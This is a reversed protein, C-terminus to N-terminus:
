NESKPTQPYLISPQPKPNRVSLNCVDIMLTRIGFGHLDLKHTSWAEHMKFFHKIVQVDLIIV